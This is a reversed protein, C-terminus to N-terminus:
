RISIEAGDQGEVLANLEAPGLARGRASAKDFAEGGLATRVAAATGDIESRDSPAVLTDTSERASAAAGLLLAADDPRGAAIAVAALGDLAAATDRVAGLRAAAAFAERLRRGAAAADGRGLAIRGLEVLAGPLYLPLGPGDDPRDATALVARLEREATDLDGRRRAAFAVGLRAFVVTLPADQRVALRLGRGSLDLAAAHDGRQMANWGLWAFQGAAETWLGLEEAIALSERHIAAARDHDGHLAASAALWETAQLLGWRDGLRRFLAAAREGAEDLAPFDGVIHAHKARLSLAAAQTWADGATEAAALVRDIREGVVAVDGLDIEAYALLWEARVRRVPDTDSAADFASMVAAHRDCWGGVDGLLFSAATRWALATARASPPVDGPLGLAAQASRDLEGLRGRLFWYRALANVMRLATAAAGEQVSGDLAARLNAGEADLRALWDRQGHGYLDAKEALDAYYERHRRRVADLEGADAMREVCFAAVSELLRFRPGDPGHDAVVLSRDVLRSLVDLVDGDTACVATAAEPTCGDAHAALRRLVIREPGTLLRWSWDIVALLTQQRPPADRYGHGLTRFRDDLGAVLGRVGLTRVRTAALELALPLGDLRRCLEAVTDANEESLAFGRMAASARAAFLRVAGYRELEAAGAGTEPVDLPPVSWVVEGALGLPERGTALVSLGPVAALLGSVLEAVPEVVHECNDLVLLLRRVRLARALRDAASAADGPAAADRIGLVAMITDALCDAADPDDARDFSALEVLWVGDAFAGTRGAAVAEALRTKGVGGVGTLTVLRGAEVLAGVEAVAEDRGILPTVAAPLNTTPPAVGVARPPPPDLAADQRLIAARLATLEAGPDLGLEDALRARTADFGALADAQRGSRYLALMHLARARERLPHGALLADLEAAAAAHEGLALRAEALDEVATLRQETLKAIVPGAFPEDAVDAYAPGRWLALADSLLAAKPEPGAARGAEDVLRAFERADVADADLRYGPPPSRVLARGGPEADALARRLQSVKVALAAAPGAPPADGWLWDILRDGSVPDGEHVLLAALLARVKVGPVKVTRGDDTWVSVTGLVGFRM